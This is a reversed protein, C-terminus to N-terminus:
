LSSLIETIDQFIVYVFYIIALIFIAMLFAFIYSVAIDVLQAIIGERWRDRFYHINIDRRLEATIVSLFAGVIVPLVFSKDLLDGVRSLIDALGM